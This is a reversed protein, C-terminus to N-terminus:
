SCRANAELRELYEDIMNEAWAIRRPGIQIPRPFRGARVLLRLHDRCFPIGKKDRLENYTLLRM